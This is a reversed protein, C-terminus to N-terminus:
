RHRAILVVVGFIALRHRLFRRLAMRALTDHEFSVVQPAVAVDTATMRRDHPAREGLRVRPDAVGYLIDTVLNSILVGTAVVLIVGMM